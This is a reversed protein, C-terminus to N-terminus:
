LVKIKAGTEITIGCIGFVESDSSISLSYGYKNLDKNVEDLLKKLVSNADWFDDENDDNYKGVIKEMDFESIDLFNENGNIFDNYYGTLKVNIKIKGKYLKFEPKQLNSNLLSTVKSIAEKPTIKPQITEYKEKPKRNFIGELQVMELLDIDFFIKM